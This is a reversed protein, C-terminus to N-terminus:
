AKFALFLGGLSLVLVALCTLLNLINCFGRLGPTAIYDDIIVKLGMYMHWVTIIFLAAMLGTNLPVKVFSLAAEYGQHSLSYGSYAAWLTLPILALSTFREALWEGAGHKESKKWDKISRHKTYSESM